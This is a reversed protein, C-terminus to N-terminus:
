NRHGLDNVLAPDLGSAEFIRRVGALDYFTYLTVAYRAGALIPMGAHICRTDCILLSGAPASVATLPTDIADFRYAGVPHRGRQGILDNHTGPAFQFPGNEVTVDSLYWICKVQRSIPSDRHLGGGSGLNGEQPTIRNAMLMWSRVRRGVYAEINRIREQVRLHDILDPIDQEFQLVRRDAGTADSWLRGGAGEEILADLRDRLAACVDNALDGTEVRATDQKLFAFDGSNGFVRQHLDAAIIKAMAIRGNM